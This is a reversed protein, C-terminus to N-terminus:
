SGGLLDKLAALGKEPDRATIEVRQRGRRVRLRFSPGRSDALAKIVQLFATVAGSTCAVTLLDAVSGQDGPEAQAPVMEVSIGAVGRLEAYVMDLDDADEARVEVEGARDREM